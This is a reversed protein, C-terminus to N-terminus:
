PAARKANGEVTRPGNGLDITQKVDMTDGSVTCEYRTTASNGAFVRVVDFIVTNGNVKGNTIAIPTPDSVAGVGRGGMPATVTGTVTVGDVKLDFTTVRPPGGDNAEQSMTWKGGSVDAAMAVCLVLLLTTGAFLMLKQSM